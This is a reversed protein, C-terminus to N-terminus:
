LLIEAPNEILIPPPLSPEFCVSLSSYHLLSPAPFQLILRYPMNSHHLDTELM